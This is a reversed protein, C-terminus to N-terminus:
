LLYALLANLRQRGQATAYLKEDDWMLLNEKRASTMRKTDLFSFLPAGFKQEWPYLAIGQTLRLGMMFAEHQATQTDIKGAIARGHHRQGIQRLWTEPNKHDETAYRGGGFRLRGHAGPGIGLYDEYKWYALNHRSEEGPCAYNSIEYPALGQVIMRENTREFMDAAIEEEATLKETKQRKHFVTGQEITLQYLSMHKTGLALAEDLEQLWADTTQGQRAYILDFSFRPFTEAALHLAAIAEKADHQRGLFRLAEDRLAQV